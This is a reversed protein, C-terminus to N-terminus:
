YVMPSFKKRENKDTHRWWDRTMTSIMKEDFEIRYQNLFAAVSAKIEVSDKEVNKLHQGEISGDMFIYFAHRFNNEFFKRVKKHGDESLRNRWLTNCFYVKGTSQSYVREPHIPLEILVCEDEPLCEEETHSVLELHQKIIGMLTSGKPPTIVGNGYSDELYKKLKAGVNAKVYYGKMIGSKKARNSM